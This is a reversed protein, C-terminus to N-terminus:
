TSAFIRSMTACSKGSGNERRSAKQALYESKVSAPMASEIDPSVTNYRRAPTRKEEAAHPVRTRSGARTRFRVPVDAHDVSEVRSQSVLEDGCPRRDHAVVETEFTRFPNEDHGPRILPPLRREGSHEPCVCKQGRDSARNRSFLGAKKERCSAVWKSFSSLMLLSCPFAGPRDSGIRSMRSSDVRFLM